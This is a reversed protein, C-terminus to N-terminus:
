PCRGYAGTEWDICAEGLDIASITEGANDDWQWLHHRRTEWDLLIATFMRGEPTIWTRQETLEGRYDVYGSGLFVDATPELEVLEGNWFSYVEWVATDGGSRVLLFAPADGRLALTQPVLWPPQGAAVPARHEEGGLSVVLEVQSADGAGEEDGLDGQLQAYDDTDPDSFRFSYREDSLREAVAPMLAPLDGRPGVDPDGKGPEVESRCPAPADEPAACGLQIPGPQLRGRDDLSWDWYPFRTDGPVSEAEWTRLGDELVTWRNQPVDARWGELSSAPYGALQLQRPNLLTYVLPLDSPEGSVPIVIEAGPGGGLDGADLLPGLVDGPLRAGLRGGARLDVVLDLGQDGRVIRAADVAGDGDVDTELEHLPRETSSPSPPPTPSGPPPSQDAGPGGLLLPGAVAVASAAAALGSLAVVRGTRRRRLRRPAEVVDLPLLDEPQVQDARARLAAALREEMLTSM